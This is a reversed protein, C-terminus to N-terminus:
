FFQNIVGSDIYAKVDNDLEERSIGHSADYMIQLLTWVPMGVIPFVDDEVRMHITADKQLLDNFDSTDEEKVGLMEMIGNVNIEKM